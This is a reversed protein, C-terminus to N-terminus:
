SLSKTPYMFLKQLFILNLLLANVVPDNKAFM